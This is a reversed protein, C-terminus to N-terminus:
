KKSQLTIIGNRGGFQVALFGCIFLISHCLSFSSCLRYGYSVNLPQEIYKFEIWNNFTLIENM